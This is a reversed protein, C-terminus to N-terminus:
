NDKATRTICDRLVELQKELYEKQQKAFDLEVTLYYIITSKAEIKALLVKEEKHFTDLCSDKEEKTQPLTLQEKHKKQSGNLQEQLSKIQEDITKEEKHEKQSSNLQEQLSKIQADIQESLTTM